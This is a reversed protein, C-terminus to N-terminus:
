FPKTRKIQSRPNVWELKNRHLQLKWYNCWKNAEHLNKIGDDNDQAKKSITSIRLTPIGKAKKKEYVM